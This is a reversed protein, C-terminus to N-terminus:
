VSLSIDIQKITMKVEKKKKAIHMYSPKKGM